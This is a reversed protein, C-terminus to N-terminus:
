IGGVLMFCVFALACDLYRLGGLQTSLMGVSLMALLHDFGLVPHNFGAM